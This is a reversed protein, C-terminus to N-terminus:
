QLISGDFGEGPSPCKELRRQLHEMGLGDGCCCSVEWCLGDGPCWWCPRPLSLQLCPVPLSLVPRCGPCPFCPLCYPHSQLPHRPGTDMLRGSGNTYPKLSKTTGPSDSGAWACSTFLGCFPSLMESGWVSGPVKRLSCLRRGAAEQASTPPSGCLLM